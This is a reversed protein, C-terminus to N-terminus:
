NPLTLKDIQNNIEGNWESESVSADVAMGLLKSEQVTLAIADLNRFEEVLGLTQAFKAITNIKYQMKTWKGSPTMTTEDSKKTPLHLFMPLRAGDIPTKADTFFLGENGAFTITFDLRHKDVNMKINTISGHYVGRPILPDPIADRQIDFDKPKYDETM